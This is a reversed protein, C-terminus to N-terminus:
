PMSGLATGMTRCFHPPFCSYGFRFFHRCAPPWHCIQPVARLTALRLPGRVDANFLELCEAESPYSTLSRVAASRLVDSEQLLQEGEAAPATHRQWADEPSDVAVSLPLADIEDYLVAIEAELMPRDASVTCKAERVDFGELQSLMFGHQKLKVSFSVAAAASAPAYAIVCTLSYLLGACAAM